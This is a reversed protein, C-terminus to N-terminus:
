AGGGCDLQLADALAGLFAAAQAGNILRHDYALGLDAVARTRPRGDPEIVAQRQVHPVSLAAAIGPPIIPQAVVVGPADNLAVLFNMGAMERERLRGRLAKMRLEVLTDALDSPDLGAADRIVPLYLGTGADVTVGIVPGGADVVRGDATVAAFVDPFRRHLGAVAQILLETLGIAAGTEATLRAARALASDMDARVVTFAAPIRRHSEAVVEAIRRQAPPLPRGVPASPPAPSPAAAAPVTALLHGITAGPACEAGAPVAIRLTGAHAAVLEEVAKSTEVAALPQGEAVPSGDAVLWEVLVYGADNSNLTPVTVPHGVAAGAAPARPPGAAMIRDLITEARVLVERELHPASPIVRDAASVLDIPRRLRSWAAASLRSAVEAGWTGGATGAEVVVVGDAGGVLGAIDDVELPYLRAPVLVEVSRGRELASRAAGLADHATGGPSIVLVPPGSAPPAPPAPYARAWGGDRGFLEYRFRDDVVGDRFMRRTYLVKDEFLLCPEARAVAAALVDAADHFPSLEYLALHPIGIFHKQVSQSHTAGYGRGGGVPCRIVVRMPTRVGYMSVSKTLFNLIQDFALGVFDGFMVEVIVTDGCLALGGAVGAIANESLPTSRVRDPYATSLGRTVKFAGGYPDAVDEGLLWVREDAALLAHLARGLNEGVRETRTM